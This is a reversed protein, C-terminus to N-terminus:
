VSIVFVYMRHANERTLGKHNGAPRATEAISDEVAEELCVYRLDADEGPVLLLLVVHAVLVLCTHRLVRVLYLEVDSVHPAQLAAAARHRSHVVDEVRRRQLLHRAALEERHLRNLGIHDARVVHQRCGDLVTDAADDAQGGVLRRVRDVRHADGLRDLLLHRHRLAAVTAARFDAAGTVAIDHARAATHYGQPDVLDAVAQRYRKGLRLHRPEDHAELLGHIQHQERELVPLVTVDEDLFGRGAGYARLRLGHTFEEAAPLLVDPDDADAVPLLHVLGEEGLLLAGLSFVHAVEVADRRVVAVEVVVLVKLVAVGSLDGYILEVGVVGAAEVELLSFGLDGGQLVDLVFQVAHLIQHPLSLYLM